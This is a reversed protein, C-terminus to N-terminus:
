AAVGSGGCYWCAERSGSSPWTTYGRGGCHWCTGAAWREEPEAQAAQELRTEPTGTDQVAEAFGPHRASFYSVLDPFVGQQPDFGSAMQEFHPPAADTTVYFFGSDAWADVFQGLDYAKGAGEPEGSDNIIVKPAIPNSNDIGTVWIAHDAAQHFFDELPSDTQWLEGSDVGVIVKHGQALEEMLSEVTAAFQSHCDIGHLELLNGVDSPSMGDDTLWGHATAEYVLQAESVLEGTFAEIIGRQAMVACTFGTTQPQWFQTDATQAGTVENFASLLSTGDWPRLMEEISYCDGPIAGIHPDSLGDPLSEDDANM